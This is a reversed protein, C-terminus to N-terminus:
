RSERPYEEAIIWGHPLTLQHSVIKEFEDPTVEVIV